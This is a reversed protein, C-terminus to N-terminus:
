NTKLGEIFFYYYWYTDGFEPRLMYANSAQDGNQASLEVLRAFRQRVTDDIPLASVDAGGKLQAVMLAAEQCHTPVHGKWGDLLSMFRPWFGDLNKMILSSMLAREVIERSGGTSYAYSNLLYVEIMGGDGDLVDGYRLLPLIRCMEKDAAVKSQNGIFDSYKDAIHSYWLTHRLATAYKAALKAEGNIIACKLMYKLYDPRRGYEVMDEMCWRYAYNVKGEYYYLLRGCLLRLYQFPRPSVCPADGDPCAFMLNGAEGSQWLAERTLMVQLRTPPQEQSRAIEVVKDFDGNELAQKQRLTNLFSVDTFTSNLLWVVGGVLAAVSVAPALWAGKRLPAILMLAVLAYSALVPWWLYKEAATWLYDPLGVTYLESTRLQVLGATFYMRPAVIAVILLCVIFLLCKKKRMGVFAVIESLVALLAAWLAFTGLLWYGVYPVALTWVGKLWVNDTRLWLGVLCVSALMGLPMTFALAPTKILWFLYGSETYALLLLLSPLLCLPSWALSIRFMRRLSEALLALVAALLLAGLWPLAFCSQMFSGAYFLLGCPESVMDRFFWSPTYFPTLAATEILFPTLWVLLVYLVLVVFAVMCLPWLFIKRNTM